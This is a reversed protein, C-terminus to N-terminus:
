FAPLASPQPKGVYLAFKWCFLNRISLIGVKCRFKGLIPTKLGLNQM